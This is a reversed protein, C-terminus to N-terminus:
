GEIVRNIIARHVSFTRVVDSFPLGCRHDFSAFHAFIELQGYGISVEGERALDVANGGLDGGVAHVDHRVAQLGNHQVIGVGHACYHKAFVKPCAMPATFFAM